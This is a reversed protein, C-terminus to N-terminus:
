PEPNPNLCNGSRTKGLKIKEKIKAPTDVAALFVATKKAPPFLSEDARLVYYCVWASM